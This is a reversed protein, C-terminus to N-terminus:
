KVENKKVRKQGEVRGGIFFVNWVGKGVVVM